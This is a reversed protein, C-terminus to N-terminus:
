RAVYHPKHQKPREFTRAGNCLITFYKRFGYIVIWEWIPWGCGIRTVNKNKVMTLSRNNFYILFPDKHHKASIRLSLWILLKVHPYSVSLIVSLFQLIVTQLVEQRLQRHPKQSHFMSQFCEKINIWTWHSPCNLSLCKVTKLLDSWLGLSVTLKLSSQVM